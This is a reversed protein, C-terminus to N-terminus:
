MSPPAPTVFTQQAVTTEALWAGVKAHTLLVPQSAM